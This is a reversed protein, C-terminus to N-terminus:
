WNTQMTVNAWNHRMVSQRCYSDRWLLEVDNRLNSAAYQTSTVLSLATANQTGLQVGQWICTYAILMGWEHQEIALVSFLTRTWPSIESGSILENGGCFIVRTGVSPDTSTRMFQGLEMLSSSFLFKHAFSRPDKLEHHIVIIIWFLHQHAMSM